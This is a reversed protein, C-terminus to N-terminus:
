KYKRRPRRFSSYHSGTIFFITVMLLNHLESMQLIKMMLVFLGFLDQEIDSFPLFTEAIQLSNTLCEHALSVSLVDRLPKKKKKRVIHSKLLHSLYSDKLKYLEM